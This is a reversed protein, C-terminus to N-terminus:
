AADLAAVIEGSRIPLVGHQAFLNFVGDWWRWFKKLDNANRVYPTHGPVITPTHFSLSFLQHGSDLLQRIAILADHLRVGEPTLPVRDFLGTRALFGRAPAFEQVSLKERLLGTKTATLPLEYLGGGLTWPWVPHASFDPGGQTRYDFSARVSVDLRYGAEILLAATNPGVGYRGARYVLPRVGTEREIKATLTSIKAGELAHPLNGAYSNPTTIEEDFPPNVWPHLQTGIDCAGEGAMARMAAASDPNAVVPWDVLYTPICGRDTFFRNAHPLADIAETSTAERRFPGKWDFEEEADAFIAFRRGITEPVTIRSDDCPPLDLRAVNAITGVSQIASGWHFM